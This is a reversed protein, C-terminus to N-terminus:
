RPTATSLHPKVTPGTTLASREGKRRGKVATLNLKTHLTLLPSFFTTPPGLLYCRAQLPGLFVQLFSVLTPYNTSPTSLVRQYGDTDPLGRSSSTAWSTSSGRSQQRSRWLQSHVNVTSSRRSVQHYGVCCLANTRLGHEPPGKMSIEGAQHCESPHPPLQSQGRPPQVESTMRPTLEVYSKILLRNEAIAEFTSSVRGPVPESLQRQLIACVVSPSELDAMDAWPKDCSAREGKRRRMKAASGSRDLTYIAAVTCWRAGLRAWVVFLSMQTICTPASSASTGAFSFVFADCSDLGQPPNDDLLRSNSAMHAMVIDEFNTTRDKNLRHCSLMHKATPNGKTLPCSNIEDEGVGSTLANDIDSHEEKGDTADAEMNTYTIASGSSCYVEVRSNKYESKEPSCMEEHSGNRRYGLDKLAEEQKTTIKKWQKFYNLQTSLNPFIKVTLVQSGILTFHLLFPAAAPICLHPFCSIGSFVCRSAAYDPVIGMSSYGAARCCQHREALLPTTFPTEILAAGYLPKVDQHSYWCRNSMTVVRFPLERSCCAYAVSTDAKSNPNQSLYRHCAWWACSRLQVWRDPSGSCSSHCSM